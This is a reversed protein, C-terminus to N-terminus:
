LFSQYFVLICNIRMIEHNLHVVNTICLVPFNLKFAASRGPSILGQGQHQLGVLRVGGRQDVAGPQGGGVEQEGGQHGGEEHAGGAADASGGDHQVPRRAQEQGPAPAARSAPRSSRSPCWGRWESATLFTM